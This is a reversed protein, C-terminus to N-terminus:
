LDPLTIMPVVHGKCELWQLLCSLPTNLLSTFPIPTRVVHNDIQHNLTLSLAQQLLPGVEHPLASSPAILVGLPCPRRWFTMSLWATKELTLTTPVQGQSRARPGDGGGERGVKVHGAGAHSGQLPGRCSVQHNLPSKRLRPLFVAKTMRHESALNILVLVHWAEAFNDLVM